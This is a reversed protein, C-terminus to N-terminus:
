STKKDSRYVPVREPESAAVENLLGTTAETISLQEPEAPLENTPPASFQPQRPIPPDNEKSDRPNLTLHTKRIGGLAAWWGLGALSLAITLLAKAGKPNAAFDTTILALLPMLTSIALIVAGIVTWQHGARVNATLRMVELEAPVASNTPAGCKRCYRSDAIFEAGCAVCSTQAARHAALAIIAEAERTLSQRDGKGYYGHIVRYDFTIRASGAGQQKLGIDIITPYDLANASLYYSAGGRAGHKARLPNEDLVRYGLQELADALRARLSEVEGAMIRVVTHESIGLEMPINSGSDEEPVYRKKAM